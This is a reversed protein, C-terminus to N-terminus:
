RQIVDANSACKLAEVYLKRDSTEAGLFDQWIAESTKDRVENCLWALRASPDKEMYIVDNCSPLGLECTWPLLTNKLLKQAETLEEGNEEVEKLANLPRSVLEELFRQSFM